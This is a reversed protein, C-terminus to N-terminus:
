PRKEASLLTTNEQRWLLEVSSFGAEQLVAQEHGISFPIDYHFLIDEKQGQLLRHYEQMWYAEEQETEVMYDCQLLRGGPRLAKFLRQYVELKQPHNFHHLSQFSVVADYCANGLDLIRYDGQILRLDKGPFKEKCRQLMAETLDIGTVQLNPFRQFILELELGTGCGVDLIDQLLEPLAQAMRSYGESCGEVEELMHQDYGEARATFFARMEEM